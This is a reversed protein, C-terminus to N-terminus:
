PIKEISKLRTVLTEIQNIAKKTHDLLLDKERVLHFKGQHLQENAKKLQDQQDILKKIRAELHRLLEEM